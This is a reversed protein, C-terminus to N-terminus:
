VIHYGGRRGERRGHLRRRHRLLLLLHRDVVAVAFRGNDDGTEDRGGNRHGINWHHLCGRRCVRRRRWRRRGRGRARGGGSIIGGDGESGRASGAAGATRGLVALQLPSVSSTSANQRCM